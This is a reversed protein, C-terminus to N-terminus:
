LQTICFVVEACLRDFRSTHPDVAASSSSTYHHPSSQRPVSQGRQYWTFTTRVDCGLLTTSWTWGKNVLTFCRSTAVETDWYVLWSLPRTTPHRGQSQSTTPKIGPRTLGFVTFITGNGGQKACSLLRLQVQLPTLHELSPDGPRLMGWPVIPWVCFIFKMRWSFKSTWTIELM